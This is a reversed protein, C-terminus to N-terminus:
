VIIIKWMTNLKSYKAHKHAAAHRQTHLLCLTRMNHVWRYTCKVLASKLYRFFVVGNVKFLTKTLWHLRNWNGWFLLAGVIHRFVGLKLDARGHACLHAWFYKSNLCRLAPHSFSLQTPSFSAFFVQMAGPAANRRTYSLAM